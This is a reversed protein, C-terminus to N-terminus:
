NNNFFGFKHIAKFLANIVILEGKISSGFRSIGKRKEIHIAIQSLSCGSDIMNFAMEMGIMKSKDFPLFEKVLKLRYLKMGCLPDALGFRLRGYLSIFYESYRNQYDRIGVVLDANVSKMSEICRLLDSPNFQGDADFTVAFDFGKNIATEIGTNLAKEYGKNEKHRIVIAGAKSALLASEDNSGDDVVLIAVEKSVISSVVNYITQAENLVPIVVATKINNLM